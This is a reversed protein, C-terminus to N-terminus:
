LDPSWDKQDPTYIKEALPDTFNGMKRNKVGTAPIWINSQEPLLLCSENFLNMPPIYIDFLM